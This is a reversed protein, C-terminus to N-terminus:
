GTFHASNEVPTAVPAVGNRAQPAVPAVPTAPTPTVAEPVTPTVEPQTPDTSPGETPTTPEDTPVEVPTTPEETPTTVVPPTTEVPTEIVPKCDPAAVFSWSQGTSAIVTYHAGSAPISFVPSRDFSHPAVVVTAGPTGDSITYTTSSDAGLADLGFQATRNEKECSVIYDQIGVHGYTAQAATAGFLSTGLAAAAVTSAAIIKRTRNM